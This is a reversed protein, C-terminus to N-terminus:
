EGYRKKEKRTAKRSSIIRISVTDDSEEQYTHIVILLRGKESLGITIWREETNSHDADFLSNAGSDKFVTAAEDFAVNHKYLNEKEKGPNWEFNYHIAM